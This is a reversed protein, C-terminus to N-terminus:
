LEERMHPEARAFLVWAPAMLVWWLVLPRVYNGTELPLGHLVHQVVAVVDAIPNWHMLPRMTEPLADPQYLIPSFYMLLTLLFPFVQRSEKIFLGLIGLLYCFPLLWVALLVVLGLSMVAGMFGTVVGAVVMFVPTYIICAMILPVLPLVKIPFVTRQYLAAFESLINLSRSSVESIIFWPLMATLFYDLFAVKGPTRVRLVVDLLFWFAAVQLAPQALLWFGGLLTGSTRSAVDRVVLRLILEAHRHLAKFPGTYGGLLASAAALFRPIKRPNNM